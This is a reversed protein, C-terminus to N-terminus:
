NTDPPADIIFNTDLEENSTLVDFRREGPGLRAPDSYTAFGTGSWRFPMSTPRGAAESITAQATMTVVAM